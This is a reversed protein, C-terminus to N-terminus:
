PISDSRITSEAYGAQSQYIKKAVEPKMTTLLNLLETKREESLSGDKYITEEIKKITDQTM